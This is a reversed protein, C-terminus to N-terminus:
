FHQGKTPFVNELLFIKGMIRTTRTGYPQIHLFEKLWTCHFRDAHHSRFTNLCFTKHLLYVLQFLNSKKIKIDM